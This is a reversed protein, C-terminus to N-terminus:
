KDGENIYSKNFQRVTVETQKGQIAQVRQKTRREFESLDTLPTTDNLRQNTVKKSHPSGGGRGSWCFMCLWEFWVQGTIPNWNIVASRKQYPLRPRDTLDEKWVRTGEGVRNATLHLQMAYLDLVVAWLLELYSLTRYASVRHIWSIQIYGELPDGIAKYGMSETLHDFNLLSAKVRVNSWTSTPRVESQIISQKAWDFGGRPRLRRLIVWADHFSSSPPNFRM